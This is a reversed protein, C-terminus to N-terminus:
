TTDERRSWTMIEVTFSNTCSRQSTQIPSLVLRMSSTRIIWHQGVFLILSTGFAVTLNQSPFEQLTSNDSRFLHDHGYSGLWFIPAWSSLILWILYDAILALDVSITNTKVKDHYIKSRRIYKSMTRLGKRGLKFAYSHFGTMPATCAM